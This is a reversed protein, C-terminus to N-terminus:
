YSYLRNIKSSSPTSVGDGHVFRDAIDEEVVSEMVAGGKGSVISLRSMRLKLNYAHENDNGIVYHDNEEEMREDSKEENSWGGSHNGPNEVKHALQDLRNYLQQLQLQIQYREDLDLVNVVRVFGSNDRNSISISDVSQARESTTNRVSYKIEIEGGDGPRPDKKENRVTAHRIQLLGKPKTKLM